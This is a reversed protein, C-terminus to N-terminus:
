WISVMEYPFIYLFFFHILISVITLEQSAPEEISHQHVMEPNELNKNADACALSIQMLVLIM